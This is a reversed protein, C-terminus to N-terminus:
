YRDAGLLKGLKNLNILMELFNALTQFLKFCPNTRWPAVHRGLRHAELLGRHRRSIDMAVQLSHDLICDQGSVGFPMSSRRQLDLPIAM